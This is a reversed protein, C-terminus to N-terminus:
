KIGIEKESMIKFQWNRDRCYENAAKWKAQNIGYQFVEKIYRRPHTPNKRPEMTQVFPKVEIMITLIEGNKDRMQIIFDPFYRHMRNDAPSLYPIALEESSWQIVDPHSDFYRMMKLEWSSRYIINNPDGAYKLPQKPIFRGKYSM